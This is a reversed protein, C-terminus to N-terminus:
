ITVIAPSSYSALEDTIQYRVKGTRKDFAVIGSGNGVVEGSMIGPSGPPSGGIAAILLDGEVVPTSGVGFFNQVVGFTKTTDVDWVVSGDKVRHCRLRGGAGFTYVRDGDIVPVARPGNSYGYMDEYDTAYESRWLEEGTLADMCTLRVLDGHRDFLYLRGDAVSPAAYGEGVAVHWLLPPGNEGWTVFTGTEGSKGDGTPGLFAPWDSGGAGGAAPAAAILVGVLAVRRLSKRSVLM